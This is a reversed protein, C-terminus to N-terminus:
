PNHKDQQKKRKSRKEMRKRKDIAELRELLTIVKRGETVEKAERRNAALSRM